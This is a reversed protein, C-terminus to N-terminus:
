LTVPLCSDYTNGTTDNRTITMQGTAQADVDSLSVQIDWLEPNQGGNFTVTIPAVSVLKLAIIEIPVTEFDLDVPLNATGLRVVATDASGLPAHPETNLPRGKLAITGDFPDSGPGFFDAPIPTGPAPLANSDFISDFTEGTPTLFLDVGPEITQAFTLSASFSVFAVTLIQGRKKM